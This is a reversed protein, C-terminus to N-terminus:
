WHVGLGVILDVVLSHGYSIVDKDDRLGLLKKWRWWRQGREFSRDDKMQIM